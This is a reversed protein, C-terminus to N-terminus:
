RDSQVYTTSETISWNGRPDRGTFHKFVVIYCVIPCEVSPSTSMKMLIDFVISGVYLSDYKMVYVPVNTKCSPM